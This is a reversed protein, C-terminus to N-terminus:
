ALVAWAPPEGLDADLVARLARDLWEFASWLAVDHEPPPTALGLIRRCVDLLRGEGEGSVAAPGDFGGLVDTSHGSRDAFVAIVVPRPPASDDLSQARAPAVIGFAEWSPPARFGALAAVVDDDDLARLTVEVHEAALDGVGVATPRAPPSEVLLTALERLRDLCRGKRHSPPPVRTAM